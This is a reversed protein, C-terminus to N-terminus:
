VNKNIINDISKIKVHGQKLSKTTLIAFVIVELISAIDRIYSDLSIPWSITSNFMRNIIDFGDQVFGLFLPILMFFASVLVVKLSLRRLWENEEKLLVFGVIAIFAWSTIGLFYGLFCIFAGALGVSIGLKTKHM